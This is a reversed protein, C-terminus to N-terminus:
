QTLFLYLTIGVVMMIDFTYHKEELSFRHIYPGWKSEILLRKQDITLDLLIYQRVYHMCPSALFFYVAFRYLVRMCVFMPLSGFSYWAFLCLDPMFWFSASM